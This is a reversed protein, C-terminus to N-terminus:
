ATASRLEDRLADAEADFEDFDMVGKITQAIYSALYDSRATRDHRSALERVHLRSEAPDAISWLGESITELGFPDYGRLIQQAADEYSLDDAADVQQIVTIIARLVASTRKGGWTQQAFNDDLLVLALAKAQPSLEEDKKIDAKMSAYAISLEDTPAFITM